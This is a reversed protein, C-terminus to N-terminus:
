NWLNDKCVDCLQMRPIKKKFLYSSATQKYIDTIIYTYFIISPM